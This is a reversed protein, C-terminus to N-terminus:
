KAASTDEVSSIVAIMLSIIPAKARLYEISLAPIYAGKIGTDV